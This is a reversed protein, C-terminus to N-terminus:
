RRARLLYGGTIASARRVPRALMLRDLFDSRGIMAHMGEPGAARRPRGALWTSWRWRAAAVELGADMLQDFRYRPFTGRFWIYVFIFVLVKALFWVVPPVWPVLSSQRSRRGPPQPVAAALRRPLAITAVSSIVIMNAYEALFFFAFKMAALVRHPLRRGARVRGRAPRVPQPQDRRRRCVFYIFFALFQPCSTGSMGADRQAEVIGVLSLTGAHAAGASWPSAWAAGRLLDDAGGLAPRGDALVQQEVVLRRPHHRLRRHDRHALVFLLGINVDTIFSLSRARGRGASPRRVPDGRLGRVGAGRGPLPASSSRGTAGGRRPILTRRSSCSSRRRRDAAAPGASRGPQPRDPGAHLRPDQARRPDPLRRDRAARALM